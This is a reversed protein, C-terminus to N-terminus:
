GKLKYLGGEEVGIKIADDLTKGKTWVLIKGDVFSFKFGKKDLSSISLINKKLGPDYLVDKIKMPKGFDLKYSAEGIGRIPYQSDDGIMVKHPSEKQELCSLSDKFGTM